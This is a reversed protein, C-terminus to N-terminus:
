KKIVLTTVNVGEVVNENVSDVGSAWQEAVVSKPTSQIASSIIEVSLSYGDPVNTEVATCTDILTTTVGGNPAVPIKYYWFGDAAQEWNGNAYTITYDIGAVPKEPYVEGTTDNVWTTVIAARIFAETDGSNQILVKSKTTGDFNEVVTSAVKSPTFQNVVPETQTFVYAMTVASLLTCVIVLIGIAGIKNKIRRLSPLSKNSTKRNM